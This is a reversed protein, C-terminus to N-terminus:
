CEYGGCRSFFKHTCMIYCLTCLCLGKPLNRYMDHCLTRSIKTFNTKGSYSELILPLQWSLLEKPQRAVVMLPNAIAADSSYTTVRPPFKFKAASVRLNFDLIYEVSKNIVFQYDVSYNLKRYIPNFSDNSSDCIATVASLILVLKLM